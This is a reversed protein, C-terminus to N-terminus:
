AAELSKSVIEYVDPSINQCTLVRKLQERMLEQRSTDYKRWRTFVGLLRAAIQPNFENLTIVQDAVFRYGSGDAAHFHTPNHGFAGILARVKNPNKISFAEHNLLNQVQWLTDPGPASAQLNLWKDVVLAENHWRRYFDALTAARDPHNGQVLTQLAALQDTMNNASRYQTLCLQQHAPNDSQILYDLCRNKLSRQAISESDICYDSDSHYQEYVALFEHQLSQALASRLQNRAKHLGDVDVVTMQEALYAESPLTLIYARLAPDATQDMLVQRFADIVSASVNQKPNRCLTLITNIAIQQAAEWRNFDDQDHALLFCLDADSYDYGLKVPASFGRLLSPLPKHQVNIFQFSQEAERLELVRTTGENPANEGELQLPLPQGEPGLLGLAIPIHFSNKHPQGPTPPCHQSLTLTYNGNAPDYDDRVKIQPTGAQSYWRKFQTLNLENADAMAAVFDDCTVAQGDHRQFYLDMGRRFGNRGLLNYIMRVVEAGKNYVTVTYFNNIEIYSDPQVPHAMPGSDQPFQVTRLIRVDDIRKVGRSGMDGSFEQDRFVTLGEKLSLQFWDRCTVRNGTWNHFYEHAIVSEVGQYDHDTATQPQALVFQTNFVNLSKNEMAGMNFDAVAVINYIDLDYELGFVEEDWRMAKQLSRMAHECQGINHAETYIRLTVKRGSRTTYYDEIHALPGAVVAFLYSPKKFPDHWTVWHRGDDLRGGDIPNGNSLLVPYRDADALLTTRYEAMVDPRDLFFTIKRFGEAECQSCFVGNSKYLGELSSNNQPFIRVACDLVFQDPVDHVILQQAELRYDRGEQLIRGDVLLRQLQLDQGHLVLAETNSSPQRRIHLQSQVETADEALEIHLEARDILFPPPSYDKLYTPKLAPKSM